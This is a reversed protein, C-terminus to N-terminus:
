LALGLPKRSMVIPSLSVEPPPPCNWAPVPQSAQVPSPDGLPPSSRLIRFAAIALGEIFAGIAPDVFFGSFSATFCVFLRPPQLQCLIRRRQVTQGTKM